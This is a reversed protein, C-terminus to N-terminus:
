YLVCFWGIKQSFGMSPHLNTRGSEASDRKKENKEEERRTSSKKEMVGAGRSIWELYKSALDCRHIFTRTAVKLSIEAPKKNGKKEEERRAM